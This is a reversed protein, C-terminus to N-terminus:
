RSSRRYFLSLSVEPWKMSIFRVYKLGPDLIESLFFNPIVYSKESFLMAKAEISNAIEQM